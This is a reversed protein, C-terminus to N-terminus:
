NDLNLKTIVNIKLNAMIWFMYCCQFLNLAKLDLITCAFFGPKAPLIYKLVVDSWFFILKKELKVQSTAFPVLFSSTKKASESM